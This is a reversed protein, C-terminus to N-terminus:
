FDLQLKRKSNQLHGGSIENNLFLVAVIEDLLLVPCVISVINESMM